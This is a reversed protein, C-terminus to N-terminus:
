ELDSVRPPVPVVATQPLAANAQRLLNEAAEHLSFHTATLYLQGGKYPVILTLRWGLSYSGLAGLPRTIRLERHDYQGTLQDLLAHTTDNM